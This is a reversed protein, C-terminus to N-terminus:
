HALTSGGAGVQGGLVQIPKVARKQRAPRNYDRDSAKCPPCLWAAVRTREAVGHDGMTQFSVKKVTLDDRPTNKKCKTCKYKPM